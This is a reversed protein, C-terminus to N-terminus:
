LMCSTAELCSAIRPLIVDDKCNTGPILLSYHGFCRKEEVAQEFHFLVHVEPNERDQGFVVDLQRGKWLGM